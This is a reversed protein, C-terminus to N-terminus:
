ADGLGPLPEGVPGKVEGGVVRRPELLAEIDSRRFFWRGSPIQVAPVRGQRAWRWLASRSLRPFEAEVEAATLLEDENTESVHTKRLEM